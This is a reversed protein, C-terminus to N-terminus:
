TYSGHGTIICGRGPGGAHCFPPAPGASQVTGCKQGEWFYFDNLGIEKNPATINSGPQHCLYGQCTTCGDTYECAMPLHYPHLGRAALHDVSPQTDASFPPAAPLDLAAEPRLPGPQGRVGLLKEAAAYWPRMEDYTVPRADPVTSDGPDCFNQRPTFDRVFFRECVMGYLASSGGTGSGFSRCLGDRAAVASTNSRTLRAGARALADCYAEAFRGALPEAVEPVSSRSTGPVGPLTSRGKEVFLVKRGSQALSYGLMGGGMGTGVVIVDWMVHQAERANVDGDALISNRRPHIAWLKPRNSRIVVM